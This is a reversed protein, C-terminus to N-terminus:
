PNGTGLLGATPGRIGLAQAVGPNAAAQQRINPQKGGMAQTNPALPQAVNVQGIGSSSLPSNMTGQIQSLQQGLGSNNVVAELQSSATNYGEQALQGPLQTMLQTIIRGLIEARKKPPVGKITAEYQNLVQKYYPASTLFRTFLGYKAIKGLNNLPSAAINAAVLDGGQTTKANIALVRGFKEMDKGMEEGFIKRFKGGSAADNFNKSFAKISNGDVFTDGGFDRLVNNMYYSRIQDLAETDGQKQFLDIVSSIVQPQATPSAIYEAAQIPRGALTGNDLMKLTRDNVFNNLDDQATKVSRLVGAIGGQTGGGEQVARLIADESMNSSSSKEIQKALARIQGVNSGFLTDATKGLDTISKAFAKGSFMGAEAGDPLTKQMATELWRTALLGRLQESQEKSGFDKVVDIARILSQPKGNKVLATMFDLNPPITGDRAMKQLDKIRIADQLNDIATQGRKFFGRAESLGRSARQLQELGEPGLTGKSVQLAQAELVKPDLLSDIEDITKQLERMGSTSGTAMKGDNLTKRLNYLQLFGTRNGGRKYAGIGKIGDIIAAYDAAASERRGESTSRAAAISGANERELRKSIELLKETNIFEKSGIASGVLGEIDSFKSASVSDFAKSTDTLIKFAAEDVDAGKMAADMFQDTTGVLTKVVAERAAKETAELGQRARFVSDLIQEGAEESDIGRLGSARTRFDELIKQMNDYNNKLRDSSGIVKEMIKSQRAIISPTGLAGLEPTIPADIMEGTTPDKVKYTLAEGAATLEENPLKKVSLGKRGARFLAGALGFTVEGALTIGGEIAIDKAIEGASQTSVGALGEVGEEAAAGGMAGLVSGGIIGLPGLPLGAIAGAIGGGVEPVIGALDAFDYRSFGEEDILTDKQLDMGLKSGGQKTIALRGRQDRTYDGEGLGYLEQLQKEEENATEAGSLAARLTANQIGSKTDFLQETELDSAGRRIRKVRSNGRKQRQLINKIKISESVTPQDGAITFTLDGSPTNVILEGM